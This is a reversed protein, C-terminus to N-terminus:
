VGMLWEDIKSQLEEWIAIIENMDELTYELRWFHWMIAEEQHRHDSEQDIENAHECEMTMSVWMTTAPTMAM